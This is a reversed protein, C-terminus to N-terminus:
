SPRGGCPHGRCGCRRGPAAARIEAASVKAAATEAVIEGAGSRMAPASAAPTAIAPSPGAVAAAYPGPSDKATAIRSAAAAAAGDKLPAAEFTGTRVPKVEARGVPARPTAEPATPAPIEVAHLNALRPALVRPPLARRPQRSAEVQRERTLIRGARVRLVESGSRVEHVGDVWRLLQGAIEAGQALEIRVEAIDQIPMQRMGFTARRIFVTNRTADVIVGEIREGSQLVITDARAIGPADMWLVVLVALM